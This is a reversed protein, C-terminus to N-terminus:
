FDKVVINLTKFDYDFLLKKIPYTRGNTIISKSANIAVIESSNLKKPFECIYNGTSERKLLVKCLNLDGM